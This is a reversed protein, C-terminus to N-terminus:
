PTRLCIHCFPTNGPPPQMAIERAQRAKRITQIHLSIRRGIHLKQQENHSLRRLQKSSSNSIMSGTSKHSYISPLATQSSISNNLLLNNEIEDSAASIFSVNYASETLLSAEQLEDSGGGSDQPSIQQVEDENEFGDANYDDMKLLDLAVIM